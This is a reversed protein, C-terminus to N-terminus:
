PTIIILVCPLLDELLEIVVMRILLIPVPQHVVVRFTAVPAYREITQLQTCCWIDPEVASGAPPSLEEAPGEVHGPPRDIGHLGSGVTVMDEPIQRQGVAPTHYPPRIEPVPAVTGPFVDELTQGIPLHLPEPSNDGLTHPLSRRLCDGRHRQRVEQIRCRQAEGRLAPIDIPHRFVFLVHPVRIPPVAPQQVQVGIIRLCEMTEDELIILTMRPLHKRSATEGAHVQIGMVIIRSTIQIQAPEDATRLEDPTGQCQVIGSKGQTHVTSGLHRCREVTGIPHTDGEVSLGWAEAAGPILSHYSGNGSCWYGNEYAWQAMHPPDVTESTLSSVVISMATPGCAYGGITDTGYLEYKWREDLQNYYVVQTEGDSFVVGEYSLGMASFETESLGQYVGDGLLVTLNQAYQSALLKQEDSLRFVQDAFYAEGNYSIAYVRITEYTPEAPEETTTDSSTTETSDAESEAPIERVEDTYTFSYLKDKNAALLSEMDDKSISAADTDKYACYQSVFANANFVVDSGFPNNVEKGDCGSAAFDSDIRALVDNLGESLIMSIGSNIDTMNQVLVTDDSIGSPTDTGDGFLSGFIVSPLMAIILVPLLIIAVIPIIWKKSSKAAEIAAGHAGGTAAGKAINAVAKGTEITDESTDYANIIEVLRMAPVPSFFHMGLFKEPRGSAAAL